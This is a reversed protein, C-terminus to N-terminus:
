VPPSGTRGEPPEAMPIPEAPAPGTRSGADFSPDGRPSGGPSRTPGSADTVRRDTIPIATHCPSSHSPSSHSPNSHSPSALRNGLHEAALQLEERVAPDSESALWEALLPLTHHDGAEGLAWAAARRVAVDGHTRQAFLTPVCRPDHSNGAVLAANRRIGAPGPRSLPTDALHNALEVDTLSLWDLVAVRGAPHRSNWVPDTSLPARRNWPCVEQCLDCGFLWDGVGARLERPINGRLEITLYSICRRADLVRPEPFAQTPCVDLCRTCTGCHDHEFPLDCDVEVDLLIAALFLWSGQHRNILLTNKGFWGLGAARAFDRELVPATDVVGRARATPLLTHLTTILQRLRARLLTHYDLDGWAYRAVRGLPTPPDASVAPPALTHHNVALALVTRAGPLVRQPDGYADLRNPIYEMEGHYGRAIWEVLQDFGGPRVAPTLGVLDFGAAQALERIQASLPAPTPPPM